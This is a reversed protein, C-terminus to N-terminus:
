SLKEKIQKTVEEKIFDVEQKTHRFLTAGYKKTLGEAKLQNIGRTLKVVVSDKDVTLHTDFDRRLDASYTLNVFASEYGQLVRLEKYGNPLYMTERQNFPKKVVVKTKKRTSVNYVEEKQQKIGQLYTKKGVPKFAATNKFQKRSYYAEKQSYRGIKSGNGMVGSDFLRDSMDAHAIGVVEFLIANANLSSLKDALKKQFEQQTMM